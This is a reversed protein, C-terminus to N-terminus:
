LCGCDRAPEGCKNCTGDALMIPRPFEDWVWGWAGLPFVKVGDVIRGEMPLWESGEATERCFELTDGTLRYGIELEDSYQGVYDLIRVCESMPFFPCAWGNWRERPNHFGDFLSDENEAYSDFTFREAIM